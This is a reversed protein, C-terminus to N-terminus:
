GGTGQLVLIRQESKIKEQEDNIDHIRERLSAAEAEADEIVQCSARLKQLLKKEQDALTKLRDSKYRLQDTPDKLKRLAENINEIRKRAEELLESYRTSKPSAKLRGAAYKQDAEADALNRDLEAKSLPRSESM